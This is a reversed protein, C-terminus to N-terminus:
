NSELDHFHGRLPCGAACVGAAGLRRKRLAGDMAVNGGGYVAVRRGPPPPSGDTTQHLM